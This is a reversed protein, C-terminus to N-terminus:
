AKQLETHAQQHLTVGNSQFPKCMRVAVFDGSQNGADYTPRWLMYLYVKSATHYYYAKSTNLTVGNIGIADHALAPSPPAAVALERAAEMSRIQVDHSAPGM